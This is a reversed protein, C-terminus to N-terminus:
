YRFTRLKRKNREQESNFKRFRHEFSNRPPIRKSEVLNPRCENMALITLGSAIVRDGHAYKAGSEDTISNSLDVDVRGPMFIYDELENILAKDHITIYRYHREEKLSETLAADLHNLMDMKSGNVGPTSRWGKNQSRRRTIRRENVNIYVKNYGLRAVRKDFTDGPGNAEWILYADGLWKCTAIALEAFDTVDIFPNAYVGVLEKKNVDVICMVSNSAGTGRSIDCAVIYNNHTDPYGIAIGKHQVFKLSGWWKLNQKIGTSEFRIYKLKGGHNNFKIEGVYDPEREYISRIRHITAADFFADASGQPVRLINQAIDTKSRGRNAQEDFWVSRMRKFNSEGGDMVFLKQYKEPLKTGDIQIPKNHKFQDPIYSM